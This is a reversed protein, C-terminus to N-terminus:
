TIVELKVGSGSKVLNTLTGNEFTETYEIDQYRTVTDVPLTVEVLDGVVINQKRMGKASLAAVNGTVDGVLAKDFVIVLKKGKEKSM